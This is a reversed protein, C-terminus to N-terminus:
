SHAQEQWAAARLLDAMWKECKRMDALTKEVSKKQLAPALWHLFVICRFVKGVSALREFTHITTGPWYNRVTTWYTSIDVRSIDEAPTGWGAKEWDFPLFHIADRDNRVAVNKRIFDGHVLTCLGEQCVSELQHWLSDLYDLQTIITNLLTRDGTKLAPNNIHVQITDRAVCLLNLYHGPNRGPLRSAAAINATTLHMTGLWRAAAVRHEYLNPQYQGEGSVDEIFLWWFM